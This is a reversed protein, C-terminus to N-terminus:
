PLSFIKCIAIETSALPVALSKNEDNRGLCGVARPKYLAPQEFSRFACSTLLSRLLGAQQVDIILLCQSTDLHRQDATDLHAVCFQQV